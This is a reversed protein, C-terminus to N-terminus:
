SLTAQVEPQLFKRITRILAERTVPKSLVDTCGAKICKEHESNMAHATLAIIPKRYGKERMAKTAGHGDLGPMQVDMLILDFEEQDTQRVAEEGNEAFRLQVRTARLFLNILALNDPLDDVVLIKFSSLDAIEGTRQTKSEVPNAVVKSKTMELSISIQFTSGKGQVSEVLEVNGGMQNTIRRSITLGLGSGGFRRTTSTDAQAFPKFLRSAQAETLGIGEDKVLITLRKAPKMGAQSESKISVSVAGKPTFKIANGIVNLLVQKIRTPDGLFWNKASQDVDFSLVLGKQQAKLSMSSDVDKILEAFDFEIKEIDLSGSEIKSFDLIDDILRLLLNGNRKIASVYEPKESESLQGKAIMESFGMVAALPTRIEHSMNALFHGKAINASDAALKLREVEDLKEKLLRRQRDLEVFVRVKSRVVQPQLPKFLLDVAGTEYGELILESTESHATVFIIPLSNYHSVGRILRALEFGTIGPMQVDFLGLSFDHRTILDLAQEANLASHIEVDDAAILESLARINEPFDDVILIKAKMM